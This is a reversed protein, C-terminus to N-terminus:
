AANSQELRKFQYREATPWIATGRQKNCSRCVPEVDLPRAYDRHDYEHAVDDCDTCAYEGSKLGPLLGRKIASQVAAHARQQWYREANFPRFYGSQNRRRTEVARLAAESQLRRRTAQCDPCDWPTTCKGCLHPSRKSVNEAYIASSCAACYRPRDYKYRRPGKDGGCRRCPTPTYQKAM